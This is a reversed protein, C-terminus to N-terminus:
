PKHPEPLESGYIWLVFSDLEETFGLKKVHCEVSELQVTCAELCLAVHAM